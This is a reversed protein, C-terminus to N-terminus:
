LARSFSNFMEAWSSAGADVHGIVKDGLNRARGFKAVMGKTSEAGRLAAEAAATMAVKIDSSECEELAEVAPILADMISKDGVQAKTNKQVGEVGSRFMKAVQAKTLSEEGVAVGDSMGLLLGGLLTSTSGSTQMMVEFGMNNLLLKFDGDKVSEAAIVRMATTIAEGHDGDGLAADMQSFEESRAEISRAAEQIM